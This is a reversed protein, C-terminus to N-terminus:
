TLNTDQLLSSLPSQSVLQAKFPQKINSTLHLQKSIEVRSCCAALLQLLPLHIVELMATTDRRLSRRQWFPECLARNDM